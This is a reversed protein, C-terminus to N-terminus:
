QEAIALQPADDWAVGLETQLQSQHEPNAHWEAAHVGQLCDRPESVGCVWLRSCYAIIILWSTHKDSKGVPQGKLKDRILKVNSIVAVKNFIDQIYQEDMWTEIDGIWLTKAGIARAQDNSMGHQNSM